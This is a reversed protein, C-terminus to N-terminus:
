GYFEEINRQLAILETDNIPENNNVSKIQRVINKVLTENAGSKYSLEKIFDDDLEKAFIRHRSRVHELFYASMKQALNQHDKRQYYLLGMTKVFELSDNVPKQIVPILRQRRRMEIITYLLLLALATLIGARFSPNKM